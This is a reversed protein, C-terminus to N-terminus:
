KAAKRRKIRLVLKKVSFSKKLLSQKKKNQDAKEEKEKKSSFERKEIEAEIKEVVKELRVQNIAQANVTYDDFDGDKYVDDLRDKLNKRKEKLTETSSAKIKELVDKGDKKEEKEVHKKARELASDWQEQRKKVDEANKEKPKDEGQLADDKKGSTEIDSIKKEIAEVVAKANRILLQKIEEPSSGRPIDARSLDQLFGVGGDYDYQRKIEKIPAHKAAYLAESASDLWDRAEQVDRVRELRRLVENTQKSLSPDNQADSSLDVKEHIDVGLEDMMADAFTGPGQPKLGFAERAEDATAGDDRMATFAERATMKGSKWEGINRGISSAVQEVKGRGEGKKRVYKSLEQVFPLPQGDTDSFRDRNQLIVQMIEQEDKAVEIKRKIAAVAMKAGRTNGDYKPVWKGGNVKIYKKGKWERITGVAMGRAKKLEAPIDDGDEISNLHELIKKRFYELKSGSSKNSKSKILVFRKMTIGRAKNPQQLDALNIAKRIANNKNVVEFLRDFATNIREREEGDPYPYEQGEIPDNYFDNTTAYALYDNLRGNKRLKDDVYASFARAAMEKHTAYYPKGRGSDLDVAFKKFLSAKEGSNAVVINGTPNQDYWAATIHVWEKQKKQSLEKSYILDIANDLSGADKIKKAFNGPYREFNYKASAYDKATYIIKRKLPVTGEVMSKVLNDFAAKVQEIHEEESGPKPFQVGAEEAKKLAQKYFFDTMSNHNNDLKAKLSYVEDKLKQQKPTLGENPSTLFKNVNGGTMSESILNDFAHFWEHALSGGGKMKTLNIVRQVPEYHAAASKGGANGVGRAGIAVALRGNMSLLGDPIGTIDALDALGSTINDVHFKASEPDKLVWNGSQVDRLNFQNKLDLTTASKLNRGGKRDLKSAVKLEFEVRRKEGKGGINIKERSAWEWNDYKGRRAESVHNYFTDSGIRNGYNVVGKFKSGLQAWALHLPNNITIEAVKQRYIEAQKAELGQIKNYLYGKDELYGHEKRFQEKRSLREQTIEAQLKNYEKKVEPSFEFYYVRKKRRDKAKIKEVEKEYLEDAKRELETKKRGEGNMIKDEEAILGLREKYLDQLKQSLEMVEPTQKAAIFNGEMEARIEKLTSTVDNTTKCKELRDRLGDIAISYNHRADTNDETPEAGVSAYVRDLLFATGGTMGGDRLSDWDVKGFINSKTILQKAQRPNEEIGQWDIDKANIHKGDKAMRKIYNAAMEKRSGAIYGTDKYRYDKSNPNWTSDELASSRDFLEIPEMGAKERAAAAEEQEEKMQKAAEIENQFDDKKANQNGKMAESRSNERSKEDTVQSVKSLSAIVAGVQKQFGSFEPAYSYQVSVTKIADTAVEKKDHLAYGTLVFKEGHSDKRKDLIAIVGNKELASRGSHVREPAPSGTTLTDMILVLLATIDGEALKDDKHRDEIIHKLGFGSKGTEGIDIGIEGLHKNNVTESKGTKLIRSLATIKNIVANRDTATEVSKAGVMGSYMSWIKRMLSKNITTAKNRPTGAPEKKDDAKSDRKGAGDNSKQPKKHGERTEKKEFFTDWRQKNTLYELVHSAFTQKDVGYDGQINHKSYDAEVRKKGLGFKAALAAFPRLLDKQYLYDWGKGNKARWRKIYKYGAKNLAAMVETDPQKALKAMLIKALSSKILFIKGRGSSKKLSDQSVQLQRTSEPVSQVPAHPANSKVYAIDDAGKIKNIVERQKRQYTSVSIKEGEKEVVISMVISNNAAGMNKFSKIYVQTKGENIIAVPDTLTQHMAGLIKRRAGDDRDRLKEYQNEGIKVEGLPTQVKGCPFLSRYNEKNFEIETMPVALNELKSIAEQAIEGQKGQRQAAFRGKEDRGHKSEEFGGIAKLLAIKAECPKKELKATVREAVTRKIILKKVV